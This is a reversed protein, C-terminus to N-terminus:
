PLSLSRCAQAAFDAIEEVDNLDVMPVKAQPFPCDAAMAVIHPDEPHILSEGNAVRHIEPKSFRRV